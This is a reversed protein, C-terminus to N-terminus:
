FAYGAGIYLRWTENSFGVDGRLIFDSDLVGIVGGFGYSTHLDKFFADGVIKQQHFVRGTDLFFQGGIRLGAQRWTLLWSRLEAMYVWSADGQFRNLAVGRLADNSGLRTALWFPTEGVTAAMMVQHAFAVRGVLPLTMLPLYHRINLDYRGMEVQGLGPISWKGRVDVLYGRSPTIEHDRQDVLLGLGAAVYRRPDAEGGRQAFLDGGSSPKSDNFAVDGLLILYTNWAAPLPDILDRAEVMVGLERREYFYYGEEWLSQDFVTSNGWGFYPEKIFRDGYLTILSRINLGFTKGTDLIIRGTYFGKSTVLGQLRINSYYPSYGQRYDFRQGLLGGAVGTDSEYGFLPLFTRSISRFPTPAPVSDWVSVSLDSSFPHNAYAPAFPGAPLPSALLSQALLPHQDSVGSSGTTNIPGALLAAGCGSGFSWLLCCVLLGSRLRM